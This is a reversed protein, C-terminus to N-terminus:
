DYKSFNIERNWDLGPPCSLLIPTGNSCEYFLSCDSEHPLYSAFEGDEAPCESANSPHSIIFILFATLLFITKM